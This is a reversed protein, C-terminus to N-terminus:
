KWVGRYADLECLVRLSSATPVFYRFSRGLSRVELDFAADCRGHLWRSIAAELADRTFPVQLDADIGHASAARAAADAKLNGISGKSPTYALELTAKLNSLRRRVLLTLACVSHRNGSGATLRDIARRCDTFICIHLEPHKMRSRTSEAAQLIGVLEAQVPTTHPPLRLGLTSWTGRQNVWAVACGACRGPTVSGDCYVEATGCNLTPHRTGVTLPPMRPHSAADLPREVPFSGVVDRAIHQIPYQEFFEPWQVRRKVCLSLCLDDWPTCQPGVRCSFATPTRGSIRRARKYLKAQISRLQGAVRQRALAVGWCGVGHFLYGRAITDFLRLAVDPLFGWTSHVHRKVTHYAGEIRALTAAVHAGWRFKRDLQLGLWKVCGEVIVSGYVSVSCGPGGHKKHAPFCMLQTKPWSLRCKVARCWSDLANAIADVCSQIASESQYRFLIVGDDAYVITVWQKLAEEFTLMFANFIWPSTVGGQPTGRTLVTSCRDSGHHLTIERSSLYDRLLLLYDHPVGLDLLKQLASWTSCKDFAGEIDVFLAGVSFGEAWAQRVAKELQGIATDCGKGRRYAHLSDPYTAQMSVRHFLLRDFLRALATNVTIPRWSKPDWPPRDGGKPITVVYGRKLGPPVARYRFFASFVSCFLTPEREVAMKLASIPVADEGPCSCSRMEHLASLLEHTRVPAASSPLGALQDLKEHLSRRAEAQNALDDEEQPFLTNVMQEASLFAHVTSKTSDRWKKHYALADQPRNIKSMTAVAHDRCHKRKLRRLERSAARLEARVASSGQTRQVRKRLWSVRDRQEDLERCWWIPKRSKGCKQRRCEQVHCALKRCIEDTTSVVKSWALTDPPLCEIGSLARCIGEAFLDEDFWGQNHWPPAVSPQYDLSLLTSVTAHDSVMSMPHMWEVTWQLVERILRQSCFTVDIHSTIISGDRTTRHSRFTPPSDPDNLLHLNLGSAWEELAHGRRRQYSGGDPPIGWSNNWANSDCGLVVDHGGIIETIGHLCHEM